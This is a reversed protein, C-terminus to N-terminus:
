AYAQRYLSYSGNVRKHNKVRRYLRECQPQSPVPPQESFLIQQKDYSNIKKTYRPIIKNITYPKWYNLNNYIELNTHLRWNIKKYNGFLTYIQM